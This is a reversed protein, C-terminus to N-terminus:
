CADTWLTALHRLVHNVVLAALAGRVPLPAVTPQDWIGYAPSAFAMFAAVQRATLGLFLTDQVNLHNPVEHTRAVCTFGGLLRVCRARQGHGAACLVSRGSWRRQWDHRGQRAGARPPQRGRTRDPVAFRQNRF